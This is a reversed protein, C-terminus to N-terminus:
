ESILDAVVGLVERIKPCRSIHQCRLKSDELYFGMHKEKTVAVFKQLDIGHKVLITGFKSDWGPEPYCEICTSLTLAYCENRPNPYDPPMHPRIKGKIEAFFDDQIALYKSLVANM